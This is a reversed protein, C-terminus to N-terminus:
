DCNNTCYSNRISNNVNSIQYRLNFNSAMKKSTQNTQNPDYPGIYGITGNRESVKLWHHHDRLWTAIFVSSWSNIGTLSCMEIYEFIQDWERLRLRPRPIHSVGVSLQSLRLVSWSDSILFMPKANPVETAAAAVCNRKGEWRIPTSITTTRHAHLRYSGFLLM